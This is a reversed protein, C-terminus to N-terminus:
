SLNWSLIRKATAAAANTQLSSAIALQSKSSPGPFCCIGYRNRCILGSGKISGLYCSQMPSEGTEHIRLFDFGVSGEASTPIRSESENVDM